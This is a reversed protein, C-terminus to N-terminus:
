RTSVLRRNYWRSSSSKWSPTAFVQEVIEAIPLSEEAEDVAYRRARTVPHRPTFLTCCDQDPMISIEFTGLRQAEAIIEEKDMGVLPRFVPM